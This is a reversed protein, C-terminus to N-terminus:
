PPMERAHRSKGPILTEIESLEKKFRISDLFYMGCHMIHEESENWPELIKGTSRSRFEKRWTFICHAIHWERTTYYSTAAVAYNDIERDSIIDSGKRDNFYLWSGNPGPGSRDFEATLEADICHVPLWDVALHDYLCGM